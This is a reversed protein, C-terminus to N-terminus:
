AWPQGNLSLVQQHLWCHNPVVCISCCWLPPIPLLILILQVWRSTQHCECLSCVSKFTVPSIIYNLIQSLNWLKPPQFLFEFSVSPSPATKNWLWKPWSHFKTTFILQSCLAGRFAIPHTLKHLQQEAIETEKAAWLYWRIMQLPALTFNLTLLCKLKKEM